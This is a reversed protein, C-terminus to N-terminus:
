EQHRRHPAAGIEPDVLRSGVATMVLRGTSRAAKLCAQARALSLDVPTECLVAKGARTAAEILDSHTNTSSAILVADISADALIAQTSQAEADFSAALKSAAESIVDSVASHRSASAVPAL